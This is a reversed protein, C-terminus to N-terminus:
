ITDEAHALAVEYMLERSLEPEGSDEREPWYSLVDQYLDLWVRVEALCQAAVVQSEGLM